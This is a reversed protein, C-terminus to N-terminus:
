KIDSYYNLITINNNLTQQVLSFMSLAKAISYQHLYHYLLTSNKWLTQWLFLNVQPDLSAVESYFDQIWEQVQM